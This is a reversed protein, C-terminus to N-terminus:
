EIYKAVVGILVSLQRVLVLLPDNFSYSRGVHASAIIWCTLRTFAASVCLSRGDVAGLRVSLIGDEVQFVSLFYTEHIGEM